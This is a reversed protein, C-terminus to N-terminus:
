RQLDSDPAPHGLLRFMAAVQGKHHFSHTIVHHLIFAPTRRPGPLDPEIQIETNLQTETLQELYAATGAFVRQKTNQLLVLSDAPAGPQFVRGQLRGVWDEECELIHTLQDRISSFGFGPLEKTWMGAPLSAAHNFIVDLCGHCWQHLSRIGQKIFM